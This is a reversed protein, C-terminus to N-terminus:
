DDMMGMGLSMIYQMAPPTSVIDDIIGIIGRVDDPKDYWSYRDLIEEKNIWGKSALFHLPTMGQNNQVFGIGSHEFVERLERKTFKKIGKCLSHLPTDGENNKVISVDDHELVRVCGNSALIHLPTIGKNNKAISVYENRLVAEIGLDALLHLPTAGTTSEVIGVHSHFLASKIGKLAMLHLPTYQDGSTDKVSAVQPHTLVEQKGLYALYHLPTWFMKIVNHESYPAFEACSRHKLVNTNGKRAEDIINDKTILIM